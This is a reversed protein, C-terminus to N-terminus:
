NPKKAMENKIQYVPVTCIPGDCSIYVYFPIRKQEGPVIPSRDIGAPLFSMNFCFVNFAVCMDSEANMQM